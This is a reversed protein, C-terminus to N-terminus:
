RLECRTRLPWGPAGAPRRRAHRSVPSHYQYDQDLSKPQGYGAPYIYTDTTQDPKAVETRYGHDRVWPDNRVATVQWSVEQNAVGGAIQFRNDEIKQSVHSNPMAAGVSTLQYNFDTNIAEFYSPLTVWAAGSGDLTATGRYLNFPAPGELSYHYLYQHAPDLPHDILFAKTGSAALDGAFYGAFGLPSDARGYVGYTYWCDDCSAYGYVGTGYEGAARGYVGNTGAWTAASTFTASGYVGTGDPSASTGVVGNTFGSEATAKGLVGTGDTSASEGRVGWTWGFTASAIGQVGTGSTSLAEGVVGYTESGVATAVGYVGRGAYSAAQGIVGYTTGSAATHDLRLGHDGTADAWTEGWHTHGSTYVGSSSWRGATLQVDFIDIDSDQDVDCGPAYGVGASCAGVAPADPIEQASASGIALAVVLLVVALATVRFVSAM